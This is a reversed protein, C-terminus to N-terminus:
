NPFVLLCAFLYTLLLLLLLSLLLCFFFFFVAVVSFAIGEWSWSMKGFSKKCKFYSSEHLNYEKKFDHWKKISGNDSFIKLIYNISKESFPLFYISVKDVQISKNYWLYQSSICSSIETMMALHSFSPKKVKLSYIQIINLLLASHNKM